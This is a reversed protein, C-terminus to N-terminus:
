KGLLKNLLEQKLDPDDNLACVLDNMMGKEVNLNEIFIEKIQLSKKKRMIDKFDEKREPLHLIEELDEYYLSANTDKKDNQKQGFNKLKVLTLESLSAQEMLKQFYKKMARDDYPRGDKLTLVLDETNEYVLSAQYSQWERLLMAVKMPIYVKKSGEKKRMLIVETNTNAFSFSPFRKIILSQDLQNVTNKNLRRLTNRSEIYSKEGHLSDDNIYMDSWTLGLIEYIGLGTSFIIHLFVYLKTEACNQFMCHVNDLTWEVSMTKKPSKAINIHLFPNEKIIGNAVLYDFAGKFVSNCTRLMSIPIVKEAIQNRKGLAPMTKLDSFIKDVLEKDFEKIKKDGVAKAIYNHIVGVNCQYRTPSWIQIGMSNAYLQLYDIVKTNTDVTLNEIGCGGSKEIELKRKLASPYDFYTEWIPNSKGNKDTNGYVVSFTKRQKIIMAM